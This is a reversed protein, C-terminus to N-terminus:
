RAQELFAFVKEAGVLAGACWGKEIELIEHASRPCARGAEVFTLLAWPLTRRAYDRRRM